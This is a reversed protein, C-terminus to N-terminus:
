VYMKTTLDALNTTVTPARTTILTEVSILITNVAVVIAVGTCRRTTPAWLAALTHPQCRYWPDAASTPALPDQAHYRSRSMSRVQWVDDGEAGEKEELRLDGFFAISM